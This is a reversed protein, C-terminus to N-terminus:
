GILGRGKKQIKNKDTLDTLLKDLIGNIFQNSKPTSYLKAIDLYENMTVKTPIEPFEIFETLAMKMILLDIMAMRDVQWNDLKGDILDEYKDQHIITKCFLNSAFSLEEKEDNDKKDEFIKPLFNFTDGSKRIFKLTKYVMFCAVAFDDAWFVNLEEFYQQLEENESIYTDMIYELIEQDAKPSCEEANMYNMFIKDDKIQQFIRRIMDTQESWNIKLTNRKSLYDPNNEIHVIISNDVFRLNPNSEEHTPIYKNRQIEITTRAFDVIEVLFSLTYIYLDYISYLNKILKKEALDIRESDNQFFAYLAQLVKIRLVRRSIM